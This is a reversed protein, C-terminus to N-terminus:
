RAELPVARPYRCRCAVRLAPLLVAVLLKAPTIWFLPPARLRVLV